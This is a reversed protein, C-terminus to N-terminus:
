TRAWVSSLYTDKLNTANTEANDVNIPTDNVKWGLTNLFVATSLNEVGRFSGAGIYNLTSPFQINTIKQCNGFIAGGGYQSSKGLMALGENLKISELDTCGNFAVVEINQVSGPIEISKLSTCNAFTGYLINQISNGLTIYSLYVCNGFAEAELNTVTDPINIKEIEAQYFAKRKISTINNNLIIGRLKSNNFASEGITRINDPLYLYGSISNNFSSITTGNDSLTIINEDILEQWTKDPATIFTNSYLGAQIRNLEILGLSLSPSGDDNFTRGTVRWYRQENNKNFDNKFYIVDNVDIIEGKDWDKILVGNSNYIDTCFLDVAGNSLGNSYNEIINNKIVTAINTGAYTAGNQILNNGDLYYDYNHEEDQEFESIYTLNKITLNHKSRVSTIHSQFDISTQILLLWFITATKENDIRISLGFIPSDTKVKPVDDFNVWQSLINNDTATSAYINIENENLEIDSSVEEQNEVWYTMSDTAQFQSNWLVNKTDPLNIQYKFITYTWTSNSTSKESNIYSYLSTINPNTASYTIVRSYASGSTSYSSYKYAEISRTDLDNYTSSIKNEEIFINNIKNKLILSKTLNSKKQTDTILMPVDTDLLKPIASIFKLQGNNDEFLQLQGLECIKNIADRYTSYELYPYPISISELYTKIDNTMMNPIDTNSYGVSTLIEELLAYLTTSINTIRKGKFYLNNFSQLRNTFELSLETNQEDYNSDNTIHSQIQNGNVLIKAPVNSSELENNLIMNKLSGDIDRIEASGSNALVGYQITSPDTTSQSTSTISDIYANPLTLDTGDTKKLKLKIDAM